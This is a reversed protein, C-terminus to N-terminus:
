ILLTSNSIACVYDSDIEIAIATAVTEADMPEESFLMWRLTRQVLSRNGPTSNNVRDLIRRYTEFLDKPLTDLANRREKDTSLLCLYDLQCKAWQFRYLTLGQSSLIQRQFM